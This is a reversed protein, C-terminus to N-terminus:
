ESFFLAESKNNTFSVFLPELPLLSKSRFTSLGTGSLKQKPAVIPMVSATLPLM